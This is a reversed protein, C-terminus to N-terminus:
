MCKRVLLAGLGTPYGLIKYFSLSVFDISPMDKLRLPAHAVVAAADVAAYATPGHVHKFNAALHEVPFKRGSFNCEAPCLLLTAGSDKQEIAEAEGIDGGCSVSPTFTLLLLFM